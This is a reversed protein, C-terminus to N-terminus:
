LSSIWDIVTSGSNAIMGLHDGDVLTFQNKNTPDGTRNFYTQYQYTSVLPDANGGIWLSPIYTDPYLERHDAFVATDHFSLYNEASLSISVTIGGNPTGYTGIVDGQNSQVLSRAAAVDVAVTNQFGTVLQPMHGPALAVIGDIDLSSEMAALIQVHAGGMSHGIIILKEGSGKFETAKDQLLNIAQCSSGDWSNTAWPMQLSHVDYGAAALDSFFTDYFTSEPWGTKGHAFIVTGLKAAATQNVTHTTKTTYDYDPINDCRFSYDDSGSSSSGSSSSGGCSILLPTSLTLGLTFLSTRLFSM